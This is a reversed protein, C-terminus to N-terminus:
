NDGIKNKSVAHRIKVANFGRHTGLTGEFVPQNAAYVLVRNLAETKIIDGPKANSIDRLRIPVEGIVARLQVRAQKLDERMRETWDSSSGSGSAPLARRKQAGLEHVLSAPWIMQVVHELDGIEFLFRCSMLAEGSESLPSSDVDFEEASVAFQLPIHKRWADGLANILGAAFRSVLRREMQTLEALRESRRASGTGGFFLDVMASVTDLQLVCLCQQSKNPIDITINSTNAEILAPFDRATLWSPEQASIVVPKKFLQLWLEDLAEALADNITELTPFRDVAVQEWYSAELERLTSGASGATTAVQDASEELLAHSEAASLLSEDAGSQAGPVPTATGAVAENRSAADNELMDNPEAM